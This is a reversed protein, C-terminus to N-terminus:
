FKEREIEVRASEEPKLEHELYRRQSWPGVVAVAKGKVLGLPAPGFDNSDISKM